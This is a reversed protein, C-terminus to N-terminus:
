FILLACTWHNIWFVNPRKMTQSIFFSIVLTSFFLNARKASQPTVMRPWQLLDSCSLSILNTIPYEHFGNKYEKNLIRNGLCFDMAGKAGMPPLTFGKFFIRDFGTVSGKILDSFRAILQNVLWNGNNNVPFNEKEDKCFHHSRTM